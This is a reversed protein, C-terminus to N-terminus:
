EWAVMVYKVKATEPIQVAEVNQTTFRLNGPLEDKSITFYMPSEKVTIVVNNISTLIKEITYAKQIDGFTSNLGIGKDSVFRPDEIRINEVTPISDKNPTLTLLLNGQKEYVQVRNGRLKKNSELNTTVVSDQSLLSELDAVATTRNIKGVADKTILFRNDKQCATLM